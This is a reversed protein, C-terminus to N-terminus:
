GIFSKGSVGADAIALHFLSIVRQNATEPAALDVAPAVRDCCLGLRCRKRSVNAMAM